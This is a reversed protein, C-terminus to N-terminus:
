MSFSHPFFLYKSFEPLDTLVPLNQLAILVPATVQMSTFKSKTKENSGCNMSGAPVWDYLQLFITAHATLSWYCGQRSNLIFHELCLFWPFMSDAFWFTHTHTHTSPYLTPLTTKFLNNILGASLQCCPTLSHRYLCCNM